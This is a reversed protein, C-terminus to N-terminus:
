KLREAREKIEFPKRKQPVPEEDDEDVDPIETGLLDIIHQNQEKIEMLHRYLERTDMESM